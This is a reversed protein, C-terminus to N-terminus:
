CAHLVYNYGYNKIRAYDNTEQLYSHAIHLALSKQSAFAFSNRPTNSFFKRMRHSTYLLNPLVWNCNSVARDQTSNRITVPFVTVIYPQSIDTLKRKKDFGATSVSSRFQSRPLDLNEGCKISDCHKGGRECCGAV